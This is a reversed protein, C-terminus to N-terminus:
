ATVVEIVSAMLSVFNGTWASEVRIPNAATVSRCVPLYQYHRLEDGEFYDETLPEELTVSVGSVVSAVIGVEYHERGRRAVIVPDGAQMFTTSAVPVVTATAPADGDLTTATSKNEHYAVGFTHGRSAWSWWTWLRTEEELTLPGRLGFNAVWLSGRHYSTSQGGPTAADDRDTEVEMAWLGPPRSFTLTNGNWELTLGM